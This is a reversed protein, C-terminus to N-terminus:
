RVQLNSPQPRPEPLVMGLWMAKEPSPKWTSWDRKPKPQKLKPAKMDIDTSTKAVAVDATMISDIRQMMVSDASMDILSDALASEEQASACLTALSM